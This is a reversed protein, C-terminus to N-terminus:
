DIGEFAYRLIPLRDVLWSAAEAADELVIGPASVQLQVRIARFLTQIRLLDTLRYLEVLDASGCQPVQEVFCEGALKEPCPSRRCRNLAKLRARHDTVAVIRWTGM